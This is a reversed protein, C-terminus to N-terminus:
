AVPQVFGLVLESGVIRIQERGQGAVAMSTLSVSGLILLSLLRLDMSIM